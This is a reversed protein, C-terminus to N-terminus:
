KLIEHIKKRLYKDKEKHNKKYGLYMEGTAGTYKNQYMCELIETESKDDIKFYNIIVDLIIRLARIEYDKTSEGVTLHDTTLINLLLRQKMEKSSLFKMNKVIDHIVVIGNEYFPPNNLTEEIEDITYVLKNTHPVEDDIRLNHILHFKLTENIIKEQLQPNNKRVIVCVDLDSSNDDYINSGYFIISQITDFFKAQILDCYDKCIKNM